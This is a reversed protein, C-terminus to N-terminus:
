TKEAAQQGGITFSSLSIGLPGVIVRSEQLPAMRGNNVSRVRHDGLEPQLCTFLLELEAYFRRWDYALRGLTALRESVCVRDMTLHTSTPSPPHVFALVMIRAQGLVEWEAVQRRFRRSSNM